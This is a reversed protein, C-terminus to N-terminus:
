LEQVDSANIGKVGDLADPSTLKALIDLQIRRENQKTIVLGLADQIATIKTASFQLVNKIPTYMVEYLGIMVIMQVMLPMCGMNAAGFGERQYLAQTEEQIKQQNGAYKQKIKNVKSNLRVQKASNKQQSISAPLLLLRVIVTLIIISLLYSDTFSYLGSLIWGFPMALAERM